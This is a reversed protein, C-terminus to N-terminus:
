GPQEGISPSYRGFRRTAEVMIKFNVPNVGSHISNSSSLIYGGGAAAKRICDHVEEEVEQPSGSVLTTNCNVNGKICVRSGYREKVWGIEMGATPDVPDICDIGADILYGIIDSINGDCHKICYYGLRKFGAVVERFKPGFLEHFIKPSFILGRNDAIDDTTVVIDIDFKKYAIEALTRNYEICRDLLGEFQKRQTILAVLANEYGLIDRVDSFVDRLNLIVAKRGGFRGVARELSLFRHSAEPDPFTYARYEAIDTIPNAIPISISETTTKRRSGWEDIHEDESISTRLYDPRVVIGDLDLIEVADFVDSSGTLSRVVKTDISWEFVPVVDPEKRTLARLVRERGNV